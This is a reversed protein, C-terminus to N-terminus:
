YLQPRVQKDYGEAKKWLSKVIPAYSADWTTDSNTGDGCICSTSSTCNSSQCCNLAMNTKPDKVLKSLCLNGGNSGIEESPNSFIYINYLEVPKNILKNSTANDTFYLKYSSLARIGPEDNSRTAYPHSMVYGTTSCNGNDDINRELCNLGYNFWSIQISKSEIAGDKLVALIDKGDVKIEYGAIKVTTPNTKNDVTGGAAKILTPFIDMMDALQGISTGQKLTSGPWRAIFPVRVGGEYTFQKGGRLGGTRGYSLYQANGGRFPGNDSTFIIITNGYLPSDCIKDNNADGGCITDLLLGVNFDVAYIVSPYLLEIECKQRDPATECITHVDKPLCSCTTADMKICGNTTQTCETTKGFTSRYLDALPINIPIKQNLHIYLPAHPAPYALYLFFPKQSDRALQQGATNQDIDLDNKIYNIAKDTLVRTLSSVSYDSLFSVFSKRRKDEITTKSCETMTTIQAGDLASAYYQEDGNAFIIENIYKWAINGDNLYNSPDDPDTTNLLPFLKYKEALCFGNHYQGIGLPLVYNYEFGHDWSNCGNACIGSQDWGLHWKGIIATNYNAADRLMKAITIFSQNLFKESPVGGLASYIQPRKPDQGTMLAARSPSCIPTPTYFNTLTVGSEALSKLEPTGPGNPGCLKVNIPNTPDNNGCFDGWGMDDTSILIINPQVADAYSPRFLLIANFFIVAYLFIVATVRALNKM